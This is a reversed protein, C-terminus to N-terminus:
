WRAGWRRTCRRWGNRPLPTTPESSSAIPRTGTRSPTVRECSSRTPSTTSGHTLMMSSVRVCLRATGPPVTSKMVVTLPHTAEAAISRAVERVSDLDAAGNDSQPTGVAVFVIDRYLQSWGEAPTAFSIRGSAITKTLLDDLGREFIPSKGAKLSAIKDVDTDVCIVDHGVDALCVGQVLGVYGTGIVTVRAMFLDRERFILALQPATVRDLSAYRTSPAYQATVAENCVAIRASIAEPGRPEAVRERIDPLLLSRM